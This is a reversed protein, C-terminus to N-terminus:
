AKAKKQKKATTTRTKSATKPKSSKTKPAEPTKPAKTVDDAPASSEPGKWLASRFFETFSVELAKEQTRTKTQNAHDDESAALTADSNADQSVATTTAAAVAARSRKASPSPAGPSTAAARKKSAGSGKSTGEDGVLLSAALKSLPPLVSSPYADLLDLVPASKAAGGHNRPLFASRGDSSQAKSTADHVLAYNSRRQLESASVIGEPGHAAETEPATDCAVLEVHDKNTLVAFGSKAAFYAVDVPRGNRVEFVEHRIPVPADDFVLAHRNQAVVVLQSQHARLANISGLQLSWEVRGEIVNWIHLSGTATAVALRTQRFFAVHTVTAAERGPSPHSFVDIMANTMPNWLTVINDYALALLSGDQSLDACLIPSSRYYGVSRCGWEGSGQVRTWVKFTSDKSATVAMDGRPHMLLAVVPGKHPQQVQTTVEYATSPRSGAQQQRTLNWFKLTMVEIRREVTAMRTGSGPVFAVREVITPIVPRDAETRNLANRGSVDIATLHKEKQVDFFQLRGPTRQMVVAGSRPDMVLGIRPKRSVHPVATLAQLVRVIRRTRADFIKIASTEMLVAYHAGDASAAVQTIPGGLRPCFVRSGTELQWIVLVAEQGGSIFNNGDSSFSVAGVPHAHWHLITRTTSAFSTPGSKRFVAIQGDEDGAIVIDQTPHIAACTLPFDHPLKYNEESVSDHVLLTNRSVCLVYPGPNEAGAGGATGGLSLQLCTGSRSKHITRVVNLSANKKGKGHVIEVKCLKWAWKKGELAAPGLVAYAGAMHTVGSNPVTELCRGDLADWVKICGAKDLSVIQTVDWPSECASVVQAEHGQLTRVIEGTAVAVLKVDKGSAHVLTKGNAVFRLVGKDVRTAAAKAKTKRAAPTMKAVM